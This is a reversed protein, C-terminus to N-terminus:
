RLFIFSFYSKGDEPPPEVPEATCGTEGALSNEYSSDLFACDESLLCFNEDANYSWWGCEPISDCTDICLQQTQVTSFDVLRGDCLGALDCQRSECENDGSTCGSCGEESLNSCSIFYICADENDYYTFYQCGLVGHCADLCATADEQISIGIYTSGLCEGPVFCGISDQFLKFFSSKESYNQFSPRVQGLALGACLGVVFLQFLKSM